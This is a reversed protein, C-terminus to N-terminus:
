LEFASHLPITPERIVTGNVVVDDCTVQFDGVNELYVLFKRNARRADVFVFTYDVFELSISMTFSHIM